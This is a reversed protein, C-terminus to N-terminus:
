FNTKSRISLSKTAQIFETFIKKQSDQRLPIM